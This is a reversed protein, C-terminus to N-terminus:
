ARSVIWAVLGLVTALMLFFRLDASRMLRLEREHAEHLRREYMEMM